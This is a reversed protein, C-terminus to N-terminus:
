SFVAKVAPGILGPLHTMRLVAFILIWGAMFALDVAALRAHDGSEPMAGAYGRSLMATYIREARQWTRLLLHGILAAASAISRDRSGFSRLERARAARGAEEGLVFLYRHMFLLQQCFIRPVGMRGLAATMATMGTTGVLIFAAAITLTGRIVISFMSVWGGSVPIQGFQLLTERDILPNCLGVLVVFPLVALVKRALYAAPLGATTTLCIPFISFPLIVAIDYKPYSVVCIIFILTVVTKARADLRHVPSNQRALTDLQRLDLITTALSPM